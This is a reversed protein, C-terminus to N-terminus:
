SGAPVAGEEGGECRKCSVLRGVSDKVQSEANATAGAFEV